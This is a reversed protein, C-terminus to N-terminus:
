NGTGEDRVRSIRITRHTDDACDKRIEIRYYTEPLAYPIKESWEVFCYGGRALYDWYAISDLSDEDDIRYMDFHFLVTNNGYYENVVTYTPSQVCAGPALVEAAGRVFATKGAGLDGYMACFAGDPENALLYEAAARGARETEGPSRTEFVFVAETM